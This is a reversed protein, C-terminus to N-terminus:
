PSVNCDLEVQQAICTPVQRLWVASHMNRRALQALMHAM